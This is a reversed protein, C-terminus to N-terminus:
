KSKRLSSTPDLYDHQPVTDLGCERARSKCGSQRHCVLRFHTLSMRPEARSFDGRYHLGVLEPTIRCLFLTTTGADISACLPLPWAHVIM